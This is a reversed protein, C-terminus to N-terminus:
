TVVAAALIWRGLLATDVLSNEIGKETFKEAFSGTGCCLDLMLKPKRDFTKFLSLVYGARESYNVDSMLKDYLRAFNEYM